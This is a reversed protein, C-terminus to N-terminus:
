WGILIKEKITKTNSKMFEDHTDLSEQLTQISSSTTIINSGGGYDEEM